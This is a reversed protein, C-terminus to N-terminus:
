TGPTKAALADAMGNAIDGLLVPFVNTLAGAGVNGSAGGGFQYSQARVNGPVGGILSGDDPPPIRGHAGDGFLLEGTAPLLEFVADDPGAAFLDDTETFPQDTSGGGPPRVLVTVSGPIVPVM